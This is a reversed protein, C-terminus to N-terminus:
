FFNQYRAIADLICNHLDVVEGEIFSGAFPEFAVRDPEPAEAELFGQALSGEGAGEVEVEDGDGM